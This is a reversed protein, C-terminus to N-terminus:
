HLSTTDLPIFTTITRTGRLFTSMTGIGGNGKLVFFSKIELDFTLERGSLSLGFEGDHQPTGYWGYYFLHVNPNPSVERVSKVQVVELNESTDQHHVESVRPQEDSFTEDRILSEDSLKKKASGVDLAIDKILSPSSQVQHMRFGIFGLLTVLGVVIM